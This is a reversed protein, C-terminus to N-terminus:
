PQPNNLKILYSACFLNPLSSNWNSVLDKPTQLLKHYCNITILEKKIDYLGLFTCLPIFYKITEDIIKNRKIESVFAITRLNHLRDCIKIYLVGKKNQPYILELTEGATFKKDTKIRTLDDVYNAISQNFGQEIMDKTLLTYEITDHLITTFILDTTYYRKDGGSALYEAFIYAVDLPHSYYPEGSKRKQEGHYKKAWYIAKNILEFDLLNQTDLLKLKNM